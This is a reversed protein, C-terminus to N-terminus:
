GSRSVVKSTRSATSPTAATPVDLAVDEPLRWWDRTGGGQRRRDLKMSVCGGARLVVGMRRPTVNDGRAVHLWKRLAPGHVYLDGDYAFPFGLAVAEDEDAMPPRESLFEELWSACLGGDTAERGISEDSAARMILDAVGLWDTARSKVTERAAEAIRARAKPLSCLEETSLNVAAGNDFVLRWVPPESLYQVVDVLKRRSLGMADSAAPILLAADDTAELARESRRRDMERELEPESLAHVDRVTM